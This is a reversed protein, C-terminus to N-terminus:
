GVQSSTGPVQKQDTKFLPPSVSGGLFGEGLESKEEEKREAPRKTVGGDAQAGHAWQSMALIPTIGGISEGGGRFAVSGGL